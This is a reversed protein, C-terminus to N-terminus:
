SVSPPGGGVGSNGLREAPGRNPSAGPVAPSSVRRRGAGFDILVAGLVILAASCYLWNASRDWTEQASRLLANQISESTYPQQERIQQWQRLEVSYTIDRAHLIKWNVAAFGVFVLIYGFLRM